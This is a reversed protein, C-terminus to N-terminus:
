EQAGHKRLLEVIETHGRGKAIQMPTEGSPTKASIGAGNALLLAVVAKHGYLAASHLPMWGWRNVTDVKAGHNLLFKVVDAHGFVAARHLATWGENSEANVEAGGSILSKVRELDAEAAAKHLPMQYTDAKKNIDAPPVVPSEEEQRAEEEKAGHKRLLEVIETYGKEQAVDLPTEGWKDKANVNAGKAILFEAMDRYYDHQAMYHLPTWDWEDKVNIDAGKEVLLEVVETIGSWAAYYIPTYGWRGESNIDADNDILLATVDKHGHAAAVHLPALSRKDKANVDAGKAILFEVMEMEGARAAHHLATQGNQDKTDVDAGDDIFKEVKQLDGIYAAAHLSIDVGKAILLKAMEKRGENMALDIPTRGQRDKVNIDAGHAILLEAAQRQGNQVAYHLPTYGLHDVASVDVGEQMFAELKVIDGICAALHINSITAGKELLLKITDQREYFAAYQLPTEGSTNKANVDAGNAILLEAIKNHGNQAAYHLATRGSTDKANIVAEKEVLSKVKALDGFYSATHLSIDAGNAILLEVIEKRNRSVAIDVPTQGDNNKVNIDAGNAILLEAIDKHGARVTSHLPANGQKSKANVDIGHAILLEAIEKHGKEVASPLATGIDFKGADIDAGKALLLGVVDKHGSIAARHLATKRFSDERGNIDVGNVILTRVLDIDGVAAAEQLSMPPEDYDVLTYIIHNDTVNEKQRYDAQFCVKSPWVEPLTFAEETLNSYLHLLALSDIADFKTYIHKKSAVFFGKHCRKDLLNDGIKKAIELFEIKETARYLEIFALIAYPDSCSTDLNLQPMDKPTIEIDGFDNGRAISNSMEWMFEDRTVRYGMVYAWLDSPGAPVPELAVGKFGLWGDEQVVYGELNTGDTLIPVYVNDKKRYSAKGFATLEELAWQKLEEGESGLMEGDLFQSQWYLVSKHVNIGPTPTFEGFTAKRLIPNIYQDLPFMLTPFDNTGSVLKKMVDDYSEFAMGGLKRYMMYSIGTKPHRTDVYRHALRKAWVLPEKSGSFKTLSLAAYVLDFGTNMFSTGSSSDLFVPGGKYEHKWPIELSSSLSGHRNMDLNSWDLIHASWFAEIFQKTAKPDVDWMLQYYPFFAKLEHINQGRPKDGSADYAVHGGWYLLGNPSRLNEFAYEIAEMAAQKYKPDGTIKTLGDLTRFLNQQSALNSLIWRTGDPDIWKVPEHTHINLGDVSLPTHKPGYTDRGYKLVNDAFEIVANLYCSADDEASIDVKAKAVSCGATAERISNNAEPLKNSKTKCGVAAFIQVLVLCFVKIPKM